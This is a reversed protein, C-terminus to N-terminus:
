VGAAVARAEPMWEVVHRKGALLVVAAAIAWVEQALLFGIVVLGLGADFLGAFGLAQVAVGLALAIPPFARPLLRTGLLAFGLMLYLSPAILFIHIFVYTLDFCTLAGQANGNTGAQVAGLEFTSEALALAVIITGALQTLKGAFREGAGAMHVLALAFTVSLLAGVAQLAVDLLIATQYRTGFALVQTLTATAPPLPM